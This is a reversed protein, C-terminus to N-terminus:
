VRRPHRSDLNQCIVKLNDAMQELFIRLSQRAQALDDVIMVRIKPM